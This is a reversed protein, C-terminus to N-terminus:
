IYAHRRRDDREFCINKKKGRFYNNGVWITDKSNIDSSIDNDAVLEKSLLWKINPTSVDKNPFHYLAALEELNFITGEDQPTRRYVVDYLFSKKKNKPIKKKKLRNIGPNSYQDFASIINDLHMKAIAKQPASTVIRIEAMMGPKSVKKSIGELKEQSVNIKSKEPDSNNNQVKQVFKEGNKQWNNNTPSVVLQVLAGEGQSMKSLTSLVNAMPDGTFDEAVRIPCYPEEDLGLQAYEVESNPAFINYEDVVAVDADQYSGLIQKEVLDVLKKPAHVFFRIEGPLGVMEFSVSNNVSFNEALGEGKGGIGYLNAFMKEAVGIEIENNRPVRVEMLVGEMSKEDRDKKKLKKKAYLFGGVLAVVL